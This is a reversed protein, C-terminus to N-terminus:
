SCSLRGRTIEIVVSSGESGMLAPIQAPIQAPSIM